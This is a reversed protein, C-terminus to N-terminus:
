ISKKAKKRLAQLETILMDFTDDIEMESMLMPSFLLKGQENQAPRKLALHVYPPFPPENKKPSVRHLEFYITM